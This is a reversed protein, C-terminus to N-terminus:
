IDDDENDEEKQLSQIPLIDGMHYMSNKYNVLFRHGKCIPCVYMNEQILIYGNATCCKCEILIASNLSVKNNEELTNNESVQQKFFDINFLNDIETEITNM